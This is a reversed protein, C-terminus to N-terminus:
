VRDFLSNTEKKLQPLDCLHRLDILDAGMQELRSMAQSGDRFCFVNSWGFRLNKVTGDWTGGTELSCQAVLTTEALAHIVRNRSLARQASFALDFSEESLYLVNERAPHASLEDAVVIIVKGGYQLCADQATRDAGRANGSVLTYGQLAAQRGAELAFSCNSSNLDRSGQLLSLDGKAWLVGPRDQGLKHSLVPPYSSSARTVPVCGLRNGKKLYYELVTEESLLHLIRAAMEQSYGLGVLDALTLDRDERPLQSGRVRNTLTRLQPTSLIRRQPDGLTSSLLLFGREAGTM